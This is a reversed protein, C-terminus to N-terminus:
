RSWPIIRIRRVRHARNACLVLMFLLLAPSRLTIPSAGALASCACGSSSKAHPRPKTGGDSGADKGPSVQGPGTALAQKLTQFPIACRAPVDGCALPGRIEKFHLLPQWSEGQDDSVGVAYGDMVDDAVAYLRGDREGLGRLHPASKLMDFSEGGDTSIFTGSDRTAVILAADSRRLFASMRSETKLAVKVDGSADDYIGLREFASNDYIRLFVKSADEPDVALIRLLATELSSSLDIREWTQGADRSRVLYPHVPPPAYTYMALYITSPDSKTIEVGTIYSSEPGKFLPTAAFSKGGDKSEFLAQASTGADGVPARAVALVHLADSPDPFVDAVDTLPGTAIAWSCAADSSQSLGDVTVAFLRDDPTPGIQYLSAQMGIVDECVYDFHEGRDNSVLLGFNTAALIRDPQDSPVLIGLSDPFAGDARASNACLALGSTVLAAALACLAHARGALPIVFVM